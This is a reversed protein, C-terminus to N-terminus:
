LSLKQSLFNFHTNWTLNNDVNIGLIKDCTTISIDIDNCTYQLKLVADNLVTRKQRSTILMVKTKDINLIMGNQQCWMQLCGLSNQLNRELVLEDHKSFYITTDGAYLDVTSSNNQIYLPLDNIFILFLLPGLISGQPVGYIINSADSLNNNLSVPQTRNCLYSKFWSLGSDNCKYSRLKTLLIEHDVFDFAKRLDVLGCGVAKGENIAKLWFIIMLILASNTSHKPRFGSQSKHLLKFDTLYQSFQKEVWKETLKSITPLISIPRYNNIDDKSGSKFLPKVKAERWATPFQGSSISKNVIFFRSPTIVNASTELIIPGINDLGTSQNVNLNSLFTLYISSKYM